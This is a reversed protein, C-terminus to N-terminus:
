NEPNGTPPILKQPCNAKDDDLWAPKVVLVWVMGTVAALKCINMDFGEPEPSNTTSNRKM